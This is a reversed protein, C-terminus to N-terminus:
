RPELRVEIPRGEIRCRRTRPEFGKETVTLEYDGVPAHISRHGKVAVTRGHVGSPRLFPGQGPRAQWAIRASKILESTRANRVTIGTARLQELQVDFPPYIGDTTPV